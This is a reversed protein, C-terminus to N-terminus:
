HEFLPIGIEKKNVPVKMLFWSVDMNRQNQSLISDKNLSLTIRDSFGNTGVIINWQTPRFLINTTDKEILPNQGLIPTMQAYVEKNNLITLFQAEFTHEITLTSDSRLRGGFGVRVKEGNRIALILDQKSGFITKGNSDNKYALHWQNHSSADKCSCLIVFMFVLLIYRM